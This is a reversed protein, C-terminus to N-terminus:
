WSWDTRRCGIGVRQALKLAVAEWRVVDIDDSSRPFKALV